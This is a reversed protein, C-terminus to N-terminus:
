AEGRNEPVIDGKLGGVGQGERHLDRHRDQRSRGTNVDQTGSSPNGNIDSSSDPHDGLKAAISSLSPM